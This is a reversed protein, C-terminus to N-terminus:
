KNKTGRRKSHKVALMTVLAGIKEKVDQEELLM